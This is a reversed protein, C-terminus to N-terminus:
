PQKFGFPLEQLAIRPVSGDSQRSAPAGAASKPGPGAQQAVSAPKAAGVAQAAGDTGTGPQQATRAGASEAAPRNPAASVPQCALLMSCLVGALLLRGRHAM